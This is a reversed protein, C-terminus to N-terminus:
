LISLIKMLSASGPWKGLPTYDQKKCWSGPCGGPGGLFATSGWDGVSVANQGGRFSDSAHRTCSATPVCIYLSPM